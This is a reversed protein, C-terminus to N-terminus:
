SDRWNHSVRGPHRRRGDRGGGGIRYPRWHSDSAAPGERSQSPHQAWGHRQPHGSWGTGCAPPRRRSGTPLWYILLGDGLFKAVHGEFPAVAGACVEQYSRTVDRLIEPDLQHSLATSGQLDCFMVTLQRREAEHATAAPSPPGKATTEAQKQLAPPPPTAVDEKIASDQGAAALYALADSNKSDLRLVSRARSAVM